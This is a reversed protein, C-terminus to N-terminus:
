ESVEALLVRGGRGGSRGAFSTHHCCSAPLGFRDAFDPLHGFRSNLILRLLFALSLYLLDAGALMGVVVLTFVVALNYDIADLNLFQPIMAAYFTINLPNLFAFFIGATLFRVYQSVSIRQRNSDSTISPSESELISRGCVYILFIAAAIQIIWLFTENEIFSLGLIVSWIFVPHAIYTGAAMLVAPLVGDSFMRSAFAFHGPGPKFSWIFVAAVALLFNQTDMIDKHTASVSVAQTAYPLYDRGLM